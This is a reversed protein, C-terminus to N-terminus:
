KKLDQPIGDSCSVNCQCLGCGYIPIKYNDVVYKSTKFVVYNGCVKKDHKNEISIAKVPCKKICDGCEICYKYPETNNPRNASDSPLNLNVILSGCRMAKGRHNIFGDSIGFSGLGSAFCMHRHSWNSAWVGNEHEQFTKFLEKDTAPAYAEIGIKLLESVLFKQLKVNSQEGYLRTHAWAECPWEESFEANEKKTKQNIPLIYAVVSLNELEPSIKSQECHWSYAEKPTKHFSGIISKYDVFIQDNGSCFGVITNPEFMLRGDVGSMKNSDDNTLYNNIKETFWDKDLTLIVV